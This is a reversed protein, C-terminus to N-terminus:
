HHCAFDGHYKISAEQYAEAAEEHTDFYGLHLKQRNYQIQAKWKGNQLTVGKGFPNFERRNYGNQIKTAERLNLLKNNTQDGDKHDIIEEPWKDYVLVWIIHTVRYRTGLLDIRTRKPNLTDPANSRGKLKRTIIGTTPDYLFWRKVLEIDTKNAM